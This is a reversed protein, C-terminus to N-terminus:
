GPFFCPKVYLFLLCFGLVDQVIIGVNLKLGCLFYLKLRFLVLLLRCYCM